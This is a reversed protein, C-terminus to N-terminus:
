RSAQSVPGSRRRRVRGLDPPDIVIVGSDGEVLSMNSLDFGRVQYIGDTVQYLGNKWCLQAQRFLSPNVTEPCEGNLFGYGTVDWATRGDPASITLPEWPTSSAGTPTRSIPGTVLTWRCRLRREPAAAM